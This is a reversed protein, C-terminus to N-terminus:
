AQWARRRGDPLARRTASGGSSPWLALVHEKSTESRGRARAWPSSWCRPVETSTAPQRSGRKVVFKRALRGFPLVRARSGADEEIRSPAASDVAGGCRPSGRSFLRAATILRETAGSPTVVM